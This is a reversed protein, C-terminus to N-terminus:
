DDFTYFLVIDTNENRFVCINKVINFKVTIFLKKIDTFIMVKYVTFGMIIKRVIEVSNLLFIIRSLSSENLRYLMEKFHPSSIIFASVAFGPITLVSTAPTPSGSVPAPTSSQSLAASFSVSLASLSAPSGAICLVPLEKMIVSELNKILSEVNLESDNIFASRDIHSSKSIFQRIHASHYYKNHSCLAM